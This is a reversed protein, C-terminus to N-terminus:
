TQRGTRESTLSNTKEAISDRMRSEVNALAEEFGPADEDINELLAYPIDGLYRIEWAVGGPKPPRSFWVADVESSRVPVDGFTPNPGLSRQSVPTLLVRRLLWGYKKYTEILEAISGADIM